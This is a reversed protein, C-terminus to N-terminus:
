FGLDFRDTHTGGGRLRATIEIAGARFAGDYIAYIVHARPSPILTRVDRPTRITVRQVDPHCRAYLTFRGPQIRRQRRARDFLVDGAEAPGPGSGISSVVPRKRTPPVRPARCDARGLGSPYFRGWTPDLVGPRDGIIQTAGGAVCLGGDGRDAVLVGWPPGGAPDPTRAEVTETGPVPGRESPVPRAARSLPHREVRGRALRYSISAGIDSADPSTLLLFAGTDEDLTAVQRATGVGQVLVQQTGPPAVGWLVGRRPRATGDREITTWVFFNVIEPGPERAACEGLGADSSQFGIPRFRRDAFVWGTTRGHTRVLQACRVRSRWAPHDLTRAPRKITRREAAFTRVAWGPGGDPDSIAVQSQVTPRDVVLHVYGPSFRGDPLRSPDPLPTATPVVSGTRGGGGPDSGAALAMLSGLLLGAVIAVVARARVRSM